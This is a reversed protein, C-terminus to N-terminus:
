PWGSGHVPYRVPSHGDDDGASTPANGGFQGPGQREEIGFQGQDAPGRRFKGRFVLFKHPRLGDVLGFQGLRDFLGLRFQGALFQFLGGCLDTLLDFQGGVQLFQGSRPCGEFVVAQVHGIRGFAATQNIIQDFFVAPHVSDDVACAKNLIGEQIHHGLLVKGPNKVDLVGPGDIEVLGCPIVAQFEHHDERGLGADLAIRSLDIVARGIAGHGGQQRGHGRIFVHDQGFGQDHRGDVAGAHGVM